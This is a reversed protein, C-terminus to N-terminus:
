IIQYYKETDTEVLRAKYEKKSRRNIIELEELNHIIAGQLQLLDLHAGRLDSFRLDSFRLDSFHFTAGKLDAGRLDAGQLNVAQLNAGQLYCSELNINTIGKKNLRRICGIIRYVAEPENWGRYDDIEEHLRQIEKHKDTFGEYFTLIIGFLIIDMFMGHAEVLVNDWFEPKFLDGTKYDILLIILGFFLAACLFFAAKNDIFWNRFKGRM